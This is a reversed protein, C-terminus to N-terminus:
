PVDSPAPTVSARLQELAREIDALAADLARSAEQRGGGALHHSADRLRGLAETEFHAQALKDARRASGEALRLYIIAEEIAERAGAEESARLAERAELARGRAWSALDQRSHHEM